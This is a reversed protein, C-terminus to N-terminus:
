LSKEQLGFNSSMHPRPRDRKTDWGRKIKKGWSQTHYEGFWMDGLINRSLDRGLQSTLSSVVREAYEVSGIAVTTEKWDKVL